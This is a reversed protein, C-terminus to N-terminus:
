ETYPNQDGSFHGRLACFGHLQTLFLIYPIFRYHNLNTPVNYNGDSLDGFRWVQSISGLRHNGGGLSKMGFGLLWDFNLNDM